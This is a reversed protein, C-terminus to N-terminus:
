GSTFSVYFNSIASWYKGDKNHDIASQRSTQKTGVGGHATFKFNNAEVPINFSYQALNM